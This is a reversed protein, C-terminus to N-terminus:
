ETGYGPLPASAIPYDEDPDMPPDEHALIDHPGHKASIDDAVVFLNAVDSWREVVAAADDESECLERTLLRGHDYIRVEVPQAGTDYLTGASM